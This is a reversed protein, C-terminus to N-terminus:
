DEEEEEENESAEAASARPVSEREGLKTRDVANERELSKEAEANFRTWPIAELREREILKGTLECRGYAGNRIRDLAEDIEYLADQEASLVGLAFDRDYTDTGADAMHSSFAPQEELADKTLTNQRRALAERLEVLRQHYKRWKPKIQEPKSAPGLVETTTAGPKRRSQRSEKGHRAKM